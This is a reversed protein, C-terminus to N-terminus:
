GGHLVSTMLLLYMMWYEKEATVMAVRTVIISDIPMPHDKVM